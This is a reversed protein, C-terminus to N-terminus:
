ERNSESVPNETTREYNKIISDILVPSEMPTIEAGTSLLVTAGETYMADAPKNGTGEFVAVIHAPAIRIKKGYLSTLHIFPLKM